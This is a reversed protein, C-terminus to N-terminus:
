LTNKRLDKEIKRFPLFYWFLLKFVVKFRNYFFGIYLGNSIANNVFLNCNAHSSYVQYILDVHCRNLKVFLTMISM